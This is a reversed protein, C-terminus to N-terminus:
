HLRAVRKSGDLFSSQFRENLLKAPLDLPVVIYIGNRWCVFLIGHNECVLEEVSEWEM